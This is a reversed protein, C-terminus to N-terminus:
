LVPASPLEGSQPPRMALDFAQWLTYTMPYILVPIVIAAIVLGIVIRVTPIDPATVIMAVGGAVIIMAFTIITNVTAAGLEFGVDGRRWPTACNRCARQKSFWGTFYARRDGCWPCRRLLGRRVMTGLAPRCKVSPPVM